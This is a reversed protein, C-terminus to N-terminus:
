ADIPNGRCVATCFLLGRYRRSPGGRDGSAQTGEPKASAFVIPADAAGRAYISADRTVILVASPGPGSRADREIDDVRETTM